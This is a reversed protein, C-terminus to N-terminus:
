RKAASSQGTKKQYSRWLMSDLFYSFPIFLALLVLVQGVASVYNIHRGRGLLLLTALFLPAFIAGRKIVRRWSPPQPARGRSRASRAGSSAKSKSAGARKPPERVTREEQEIENGEHDIWMYEHRQERERRRRQRKTAM